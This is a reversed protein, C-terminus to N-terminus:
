GGGPPRRRTDVIRTPTALPAFGAAGGTLAPAPTAATAPHRSAAWPEAGDVMLKARKTYAAPGSSHVQDFGVLTPEADVAARWDVVSLLPHVKAADNLATNWAAQWTPQGHSINQWVVTRDGAAALVTEIRARCAALDNTCYGVDNSGFGFLLVPPDFGSAHWAAMTLLASWGNITTQGGCIASARVPGWGAAVLQDVLHGVTIMGMGTSDGAFGIPGRPGVGDYRGVTPDASCAAHASPVAVALAALCISLVACARALRRM